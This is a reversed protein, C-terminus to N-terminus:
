KRKLARVLPGEDRIVGGTEDFFMGLPREVPQDRFEPKNPFTETSLPMAAASFFDIKRGNPLTPECAVEYGLRTFLEHLYLEWFAADFEM